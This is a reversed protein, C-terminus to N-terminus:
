IRHQVIFMCGNASHGLLMPQRRGLWYPDAPCLPGSDVQPATM